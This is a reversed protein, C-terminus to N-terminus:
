QAGKAEGIIEMILSSKVSYNQETEFIAKKSSLGNELCQRYFRRIGDRIMPENAISPPRGRASALQFRNRFARPSSTTGELQQVLIELLERDLRDLKKLCDIVEERTGYKLADYLDSSWREHLEDDSLKDDFM